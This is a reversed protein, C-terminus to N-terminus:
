YAYEKVREIKQDLLESLQDFYVETITEKVNWQTSLLRVTYTDNWALTILVIGRHHHGQVKFSLAKNSYNVPSNFGWSWLWTQRYKLLTLTEQVNFERECVTSLLEFQKKNM